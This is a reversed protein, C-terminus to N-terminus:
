PIQTPGFFLVRCVQACTGPPIVLVPRTHVCSLASQQSFLLCRFLMTDCSVRCQACASACLNHICFSSVARGRFFSRLDAALREQVILVYERM